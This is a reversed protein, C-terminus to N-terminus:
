YGADFDIVYRLPQGDVYRRYNDIFIPAILAPYSLAAIHGTVHLNPADWLPDGQPLPEEDFVDLVAGGLRGNRLADLLAADDIVNGRGVNIFLVHPSLKALAARDLLNRTAATQPLTSVLYDLGDLFDHLKGGPYVAAFGPTAAGSRSLGTVRIDFAAAAQAIHRGISGTGMIGLNKGQLRGSPTTDWERRDQAAARELVRLECALLNGLVYEAMQPGFVDRVGTLVYDRRGHEVLPTVGAWTSQVWDVAPMDGIVAAIMDPEGFLIAQDKYADLAAQPSACPVLQPPSDMRRLTEDVLEDADTAVVLCEPM